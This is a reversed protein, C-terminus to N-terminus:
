PHAGSVEGLGLGLGKVGRQGRRVGFGKGLGAVGLVGKKQREGRAAARWRRGGEVTTSEHDHRSHPTDM